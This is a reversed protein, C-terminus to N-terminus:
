TLALGPQKAENGLSPVPSSSCCKLTVVVAVGAQRLFDLLFKQVCCEEQILKGAGNLLSIRSM